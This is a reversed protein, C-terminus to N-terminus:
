HHIKYRSNKSLREGNNLHIGLKVAADDIDGGGGYPMKRNKDSTSPSFDSYIDKDKVNENSSILSNSMDDFENRFKDLMEDFKHHENKDKYINDDRKKKDDLKKTNDLKMQQQSSQHRLSSQQKMSSMQTLEPLVNASSMANFCRSMKDVIIYRANKSVLYSYDEIYDKYRLVKSLMSRIVVREDPRRNKAVNFKGLIKGYVKDASFFGHFKDKFNKSKIVPKGNKRSISKPVFWQNKNFKSQDFDFTLFKFTELFIHITPLDKLTCLKFGDRYVRFDQIEHALQRMPKFRKGIITKATLEFDYNYDLPDDNRDKYGHFINGQFYMSDVNLYKRYAGDYALIQLHGPLENFNKTEKAFRKWVEFQATIREAQFVGELYRLYSMRKGKLSELLLKYRTKLLDQLLKQKFIQYKQVQPRLHEREAANHVQPDVVEHFNKSDAALSKDIKKVKYDGQEKLEHDTFPKHNRLLRKIDENTAIPDLEDIKIWLGPSGPKVSTIKLDADYTVIPEFSHQGFKKIYDEQHKAFLQLSIRWNERWFLELSVYDFYMIVDEFILKRTNEFSHLWKKGDTTTIKDLASSLDNVFHLRTYKIALDQIQKEFELNNDVLPQSSTFLINTTLIYTFFRIFILLKSM